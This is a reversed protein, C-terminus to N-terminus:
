FDFPLLFKNIKVSEVFSILTTEVGNKNIYTDIYGNIIKEKNTYKIFDGAWHEIKEISYIDNNKVNIIKLINKNHEIVRARVTNSNDQYEGKIFAGSQVYENIDTTINFVANERNITNKYGLIIPTNFDEYSKVYLQINGYMEVYHIDGVFNTM